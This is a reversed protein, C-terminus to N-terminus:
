VPDELFLEPEYERLGRDFARGAVAHERDKCGARGEVAPDRSAEFGAFGVDFARRLRFDLGDVLDEEIDHLGVAADVSELADDAETLSRSKDRAKKETLLDLLAVQTRALRFEGKADHYAAGERRDRQGLGDVRSIIFEECLNRRHVGPAAVVMNPRPTLFQPLRTLAVVTELHIERSTVM